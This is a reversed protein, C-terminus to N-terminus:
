LHHAAASNGVTHPHRHVCIAALTEAVELPPVTKKESRRGQPAAALALDNLSVIGVVRGNEVVPLRRVQASRMIEEADAISDGPRCTLLQESMAECVRLSRLDRGTMYAAMCIDRDTVMGIPKGADDVVPICGCDHDWMLQAPVNLSDERGCTLVQESMIASIKM